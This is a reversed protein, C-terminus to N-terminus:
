ARSAREKPMEQKKPYRAMAHEVIKGILSQYDMGAAQAAMALESGSELYCSANVELVFIEGTDSYRLDVRGYDKVRMARYADIAVKQLRARLEDPIDAIISRTGAFEASSEDWKAASDAVRVMGDPMGSFDLEIPPLALADDHPGVVGVYFERGEIYEEALAADGLEDHIEIVRRMLETTDHVLSKRCIGISADMRAPKVFLPMRLNGGTELNGSPSFVAFKPFAVGEFALLSKGIVKDQAIFLEGPGSGTYPVGILELVGAVAIDSTPDEGFMELLNFVLDPQRRKLGNVLKSLDDHIALVSVQHGLQRLAKSVHKVVIDPPGNEEGLNCLVTIKMGLVYQTV